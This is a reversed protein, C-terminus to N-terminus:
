SKKKLRSYMAGENLFEMSESRYKLPKLWRNKPQLIGHVEKRERTTVKQKESTTKGFSVNGKEKGKRNIECKVGNGSRIRWRVVKPSV